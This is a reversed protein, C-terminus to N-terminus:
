KIRIRNSTDINRKRQYLTLPGPSSRFGTVKCEWMQSATVKGSIKGGIQGNKIREERSLGFIGIKNEKCMKGTVRGGAKASEIMESESLSFIGIKSEKAMQGNIKGNKRLIDLSIM